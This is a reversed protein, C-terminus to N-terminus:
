LILVLLGLTILFLCADALPRHWIYKDFHLRDLGARLPLFLLLALALALVFSSVYVGAINIEQEM